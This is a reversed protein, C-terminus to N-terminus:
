NRSFLYAVACVLAAIAAPPSVAIGASIPSPAPADAASASGILAAFAVLAAMLAMALSREM